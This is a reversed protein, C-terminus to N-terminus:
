SNREEGGERRIKDAQRALVTRLAFGGIIVIPVLRLEVPKGMVFIKGDLTFWSLATLLAYLGLALWYKRNLDSDTGDARDLKRTQAAYGSNERWRM